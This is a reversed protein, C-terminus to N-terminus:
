FPLYQCLVPKSYTEDPAYTWQILEPIVSESAFLTRIITIIYNYRVSVEFIMIEYISNGYYLVNLSPRTDM